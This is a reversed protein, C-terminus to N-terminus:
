MKENVVLVLSTQDAIDTESVTLSDYLLYGVYVLMQCSIPISEKEYIKEKIMSITDSPQVILEIQKGPASIMIEMESALTGQCILIDDDKLQYDLLLKEKELQVDKFSIRLDDNMKLKFKDAVEKQLESVLANSELKFMEKESKFEVFLCVQKASLTIKSNKQLHYELLQKTGELIETAHVLVQYEVPMKSSTALREKLSKVSQTPYVKLTMM